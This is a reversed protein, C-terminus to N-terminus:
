KKTVWYAQFSREPHLAMLMFKKFIAEKLKDNSIIDLLGSDNLNGLYGLNKDEENTYTFPFVEGNYYITLCDLNRDWYTMDTISWQNGHKEIFENQFFDQYLPLLYKSNDTDWFQHARGDIALTEFKITGINKQEAFALVNSINSVTHNAITAYIQLKEMSYGAKDLNHIGKMTKAFSGEGRMFDHSERTGGDISIRIDISNATLENAVEESILTGNTLLRVKLKKAAYKLINLCDNKRSLPEGGSISVLISGHIDYIEDILSYLRQMSLGYEGQPSSAVYCHKCSLNCRNTMLLLVSNFRPKLETM